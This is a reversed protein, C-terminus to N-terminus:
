KREKSGQGRKSDKLKRTGLLFLPGPTKIDNRRRLESATGCASLALTVSKLSAPWRATCVDRLNTSISLHVSEECSIFASKRGARSKLKEARQQGAPSRSYYPIRKKNNCSFIAGRNRASARGHTSISQRNNYEGRSNIACRLRARQKIPTPAGKKRSISHRYIISILARALHLWPRIM